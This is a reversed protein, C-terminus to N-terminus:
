LSMCCGLVPAPKIDYEVVTECATAMLPNFNRTTKNYVVNGKKDVKKFTSLEHHINEKGFKDTFYAKFEVTGTADNLTGNLIINSPSPPTGSEYVLTSGLYLKTTETSGLYAKTINTTGLKIAM